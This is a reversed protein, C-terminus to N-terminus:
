IRKKIYNNMLLEMGVMNKIPIQLDWPLQLKREILADNIVTVIDLMSKAESFLANSLVKPIITGLLDAKISGALLKNGAKLFDYSPNTRINYEIIEDLFKNLFELKKGKVLLNMMELREESMPIMLGRDLVHIKPKGNIVEVLYNGISPDSQVLVTGGETTPKQDYQYRNFLIIQKVVESKM